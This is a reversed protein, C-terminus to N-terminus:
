TSEARKKMASLMEPLDRKQVNRVFFGPAYFDPKIEARFTLLTGQGTQYDELLWEGRYIKFDGSIQQFSLRKPYDGRVKMTISVSKRFLLVGTTGKQFIVQEEGNDSLLGSDTLKPVFFKQNDYDTLATWVVRPHAAIFIRGTVVTIGDSLDDVVVSAKGNLKKLEEDSLSGNNASPMAAAHHFLLAYVITVLATISRVSAIVPNQM